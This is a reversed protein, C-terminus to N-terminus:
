ALIQLEGQAFEVGDGAVNNGGTVTMDNIAAMNFEKIAVILGWGASGSKRHGVILEGKVEDIVALVYEGARRGSINVILRYWLGAAWNGRLVLTVESM